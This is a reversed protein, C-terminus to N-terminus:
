YRALIRYVRKVGPHDNVVAGNVEVWAHAQLPMAQAGIVLQAPLAALRLLCTTVASRQLCLTKKPYWVCAREVALCIRRVFSVEDDCAGSRTPWHEVIRCLKQLSSLSLVGDFAVLGALAIVTWTRCDGDELEPHKAAYWPCSPLPGGVLVTPAPPVPQKSQVVLGLESIRAQLAHLDLRVQERGVGFELCIKDVIQDETKGAGLEEWFRIATPNLKLMRDHELDLLVGGDETTILKSEYLM